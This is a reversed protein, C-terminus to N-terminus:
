QTEKSETSKISDAAPRKILIARQQHVNHFQYILDCEASNCGILLKVEADRKFLDVTCVVATVIEASLSGRWVDIGDGDGATTGDLYGYDFPYIIDPFRPHATNAPRDVIISSSSVLEDSAHWFVSDNV